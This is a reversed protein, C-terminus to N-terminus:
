AACISPWRGPPWRITPCKGPSSATLWRRSTRRLTAGTGSPQLSLQRLIVSRNQIPGRQQRMGNGPVDNRLLTAYVIVLANGLQAAPPFARNCSIADPQAQSTGSSRRPVLPNTGSRRVIEIKDRHLLRSHVLVSQNGILLNVCTCALPLELEKEATVALAASDSAIGVPLSPMTPMSHKVHITEAPPSIVRGLRASSGALPTVVHFTSLRCIRRRGCTRWRLVSQCRRRFSVDFSLMRGVREFGFLVAIHGRSECAKRFAAAWRYRRTVTLTRVRSDSAPPTISDHPATIWSRRDRSPTM